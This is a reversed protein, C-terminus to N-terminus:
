FLFFFQVLLNIVNIIFIYGPLATFSIRRMLLAITAIVLTIFNLFVAMLGLPVIFKIGEEASHSLHTYRSAQMALFCLNFIFAVKLFFRLRAM